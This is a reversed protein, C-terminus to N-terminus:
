EVGRGSETVWTGSDSDSPKRAVFRQPHAGGQGGGARWAGTGIEGFTKERGGKGVQATAFRRTKLGRGSHAQACGACMTSEPRDGVACLAPDWGRNPRSPSESGGCPANFLFPPAM